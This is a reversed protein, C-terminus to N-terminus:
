AGVILSRSGVAGERLADRMLQQMRSLEDATPKRNELGFVAERIKGDRVFTAVNVRLKVASLTALFPAVPFASIGDNGDIIATVGQRVFNEAL